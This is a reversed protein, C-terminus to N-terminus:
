RVPYRPALDHPRGATLPRVDGTAVEVVFLRQEVGSRTSEFIIHKGDPSWSPNQDGSAGGGDTLKRRNEGEPSMTYLKYTGSEFAAFAVARGDPSWAPFHHHTPGATLQRQNRGDAEMIFIQQSGARDSQFALRSGDPSWTPSVNNNPLRTLQQVEGSGLDLVFIQEGGDRFAHFAIRQGDPSWAPNDGEIPSGDRRTLPRQNTGNSNMLYLRWQGGDRNSRFVIQSGDPSFSPRVNDSNGSTLQRPQAGPRDLVFIHWRGPTGVNSYFVVPAQDFSRADELSRLVRFTSKAVVPPSLPIHDNRTLVVWVTHEGVSLPIDITYSTEATHVIGSQGTPIPVGRPLSDPDIDVFLHFHYAAPDNAAPPKIVLGPAEMTVTVPAITGAGDQPSIIRLPIASGRGPAGARPGEGAPAAPGGGEGGRLILFVVVLVLVAVGAVGAALLWPLLRFPSSKSGDPYSRRRRRRFRAPSLSRPPPPEPSDPQEADGGSAEPTAGTPPAAAPGPPGGTAASSLSPSVVTPALNDERRQENDEIRGGGPSVVTDDEITIPAIRTSEELSATRGVTISDQEMTVDRDAQTAATSLDVSKVTADPEVQAATALAAAFAGASEWREEATKALARHLVTTIEASVQGNLQSLTPPSEHVIKYMLATGDGEFPPRGALMEFAIVGLAYIDTAATVDEGRVQEPAMYRPTGLAMGPLTLRATELARAIGFDTLTVWDGAGVIVNSPKVDRHVLGEQHTYDLAEALQRVIPVVEQLPLPARQAIVDALNKGELLRMSIYARGDPFNGIDYITVIHPHNLRAALRAEQQFRQRFAPDTALVGSLVKLAVTRDLFIDRARYVVSSAGHGLEAEIQYRGALLNDTM